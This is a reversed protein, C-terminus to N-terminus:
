WSAWYDLYVVRGKFASLGVVSLPSAASAGLCAACGLMAQLVFERLRNVGSAEERVRPWKRGHCDLTIAEFVGM